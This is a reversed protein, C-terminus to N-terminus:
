RRRTRSSRRKSTPLSKQRRTSTKSPRSMTQAATLEHKTGSSLIRVPANPCESQVMALEKKVEMKDKKVESEKKALDEKVEKGAATDILKKKQVALEHQIQLVVPNVQLLGQIVEVAGPHTGNYRKVTAGRAHLQGWFSGESLLETERQEGEEPTTTKDWMTTAM